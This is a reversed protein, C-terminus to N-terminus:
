PLSLVLPTSTFFDVKALSDGGKVGLTWVTKYDADTFRLDFTAGGSSDTSVTEQRQGKTLVLTVGATPEEPGVLRVPFSRTVASQSWSLSQRLRPEIELTGEILFDNAPATASEPIIEAGGVWRSDEFRLRGHYARPDFENMTSHRVRVDADNWLFFWLGDCGDFTAQRPGTIFFGWQGTVEVGVLQLDGLKLWTPQGLRLGSVALPPGGAPVKYVLKRLRSDVIQVMATEDVFLIWGREFPGPGLSDPEMQVRVLQLNYDIKWTKLDRRLDFSPIFGPSLNAALFRGHAPVGFAVAGIRSDQAIVTAKDSVQLSGGLDTVFRSDQVQVVAQESADIFHIWPKAKVIAVTSKGFAQVRVLAENVALLGGRDIDLSANDYLDIGWHILPSGARDFVLVAGKEIRLQSNDRLIINGHELTYRGQKLVLREKGKLELRGTHRGGVFWNKNGQDPGNPLALLPRPAKAHPATEKGIVVEVDDVWVVSGELSEFSVGGQPPPTSDDVGVVEEGDVSVDISNGGVRIEVQHFLNPAIPAFGRGMKRLSTGTQQSIWVGGLGFAVLYRLQKGDKEDELLNAQIQSQMGDLRLRFLLASIDGSHAVLSAKGHGAGRLAHGTGQPLRSWSWVDSALQWDQTGKEFGYTHVVPPTAAVLRTSPSLLILFAGVLRCTFPRASLLGAFM